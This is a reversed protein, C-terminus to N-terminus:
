SRRMRVQDGLLEGTQLAAAILPCELRTPGHNSLCVRALLPDVTSTQAAVLALATVSGSNINLWTLWCLVPNKRVYSNM